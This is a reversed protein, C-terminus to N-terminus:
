KLSVSALRSYIPGNRTLQSKMLYVADVHFGATREALTGTVLEGLRQREAPGAEERVRALTLHATFPRAEAKFGLPALAADIRKPLLGLKEIDGSLGVWVVQVRRPNPFVGLGNIGLRFPAVGRCAEELAATIKGVAGAEINGLFKLTLHMIAPDVWKVAARSEAKLRSQIAALSSKVESPLEIAIFSRIEEM